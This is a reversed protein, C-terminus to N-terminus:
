FSVQMSIDPGQGSIKISYGLAEYIAIFDSIALRFSFEEGDPLPVSVSGRADSLRLTFSSKMDEAASEALRSFRHLLSQFDPLAICRLKRACFLDGPYENASGGSIKQWSIRCREIEEIENEPDFISIDGQIPKLVNWLKADLQLSLASNSSYEANLEHMVKVLHCIHAIPEPAGCFQDLIENFDTLESPHELVLGRFQQFASNLRRLLSSRDDPKYARVKADLLDVEIYECIVKFGRAEVLTRLDDEDDFSHEYSFQGDLAIDLCRRGLQSLKKQLQKQYRLEETKQSQELADQRQKEAVRKELIKKANHANFVM